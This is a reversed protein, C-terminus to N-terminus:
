EAAAQARSTELAHQNPTRRNSDGIATSNGVVEQIAQSVEDIVVHHVPRSARRVELLQRSLSGRPDNERGRVQIM